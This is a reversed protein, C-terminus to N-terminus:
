SWFSTFSPLRRINYKSDATSSAIYIM